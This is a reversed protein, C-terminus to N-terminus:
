EWVHYVFEEKAMEFGRHEYFGCATENDAQTTVEVSLGKLYAENIIEQILSSGIGRERYNKDTAFLGISIENGKKKATILGMPKGNDMPAFVYDAFGANISNDIWTRYLRKFDEEGISSDIKFRSYEGSQYALDYLIAPDEFSSYFQNHTPVFKPKKLVYSRKKDALLAKFGMLDLPRPSYVYILKCGLNQLREIEVKVQQGNAREVWIIGVNFGFFKSDWELFGSHEIM